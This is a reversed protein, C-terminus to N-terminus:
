NINSEAKPINMLEKFMSETLKVTYFKQSNKKIKRGRDKFKQVNKKRNTKNFKEKSIGIKENTENNNTTKSNLGKKNNIM